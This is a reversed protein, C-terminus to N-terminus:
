CASGEPHDEIGELKERCFFLLFPDVCVCSVPTKGAVIAVMAALLGYVM